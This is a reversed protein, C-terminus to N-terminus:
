FEAHEKRCLNLIIKKLREDEEKSYNINKNAKLCSLCRIQPNKRYTYFVEGCSCKCKYLDGEKECKILM